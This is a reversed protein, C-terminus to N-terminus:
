NKGAAALMAVFTRLAEARRDSPAASVADLAASGVVVADSVGRLSAVQEAASIGFGVAIPLSTHRRLRAVFEGVDGGLVRGAGTVGTFAVGYVCWGSSWCTPVAM